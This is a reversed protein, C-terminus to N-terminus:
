ARVISTISLVDSGGSGGVMGISASDSTTGEVKVRKNALGEPVSLSAASGDISFQRGDDTKVVWVGPGLDLLELKGELIM